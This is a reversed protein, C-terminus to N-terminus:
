LRLPTRLMNKFSSLTPASRIGTAVPGAVCFARNGLQLTTRPVIFDGRAASRLISLNPVTLVPSNPIAKWRFIELSEDSDTSTKLRRCRLSMRTQENNINRRHQLM